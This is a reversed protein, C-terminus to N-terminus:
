VKQGCKPCFRSTPPIPAGCRSCINGM